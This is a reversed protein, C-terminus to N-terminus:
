DVLAARAPPNTLYAIAAYLIPTDDHSAGLLHHNCRLCLLGRVELTKHDHDVAFRKRGPACGCIACRGGQAALLKQYDGPKLGYRREAARESAARATARQTATKRPRAVTM